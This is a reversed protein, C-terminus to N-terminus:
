ELRIDLMDRLGDGLLNFGMITIFVFLGPFTTLWWAEPLHSRGYSMMTGWDPTPEQAGLGFFALVSGLFIAFGLDLSAKVLLSTTLNPFIDRFAIRLTGAGLARSAEVYQEEKLSLTEGYILRAYWPWWVLGVGLISNELGPGLAVSVVFALALPPVAMFVDTTRMIISGLKGGLLAAILGLPTGISVSVGIVVFGLLLAIRCGFITRSLVDRGAEDTGFIHEPSPPYLRGAFDTKRTVDEPYPAVWPAFVALFMILFIIAIGAVSLKNKILRYAFLRLDESRTM